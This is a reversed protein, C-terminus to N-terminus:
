LFAHSSINAVAQVFDNVDNAFRVPEEWHTAHGTGEYRIFRCDPISAKLKNQDVETAMFDKDGWILLVPKQMKKLSELLDIDFFGNIIGKWGHAPLLKSDEIIVDVFDKPVERFITGKQFGEIFAPDIPDQLTNIHDRFDKMENTSNFSAFSAVLVLGLTKEPHDIAFKQAVMSGLSHGVIIASEINLKKMFLLLDNSFDEPAYGSGPKDSNGHGRQTISFAHMSPSLHPMVLEFSKWTDSLGHLLIVPVGGASGKEAYELKVNNSLVVTKVVPSIEMHEMFSLIEPKFQYRMNLNDSQSFSFTSLTLIVISLAIRKM